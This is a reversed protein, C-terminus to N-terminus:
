RIEVGIKRLEYVADDSGCYAAKKFAEVADNKRGIEKYAVGLLYNVQADDPNIKLAQMYWPVAELFSGHDAYFNGTKTYATIYDPNVEIAKQYSALAKGDENLKGYMDGLNCYAAVFSYDAGVARKYYSAAEEYREEERFTHGLLNYFGAQSFYASLLARRYWARAHEQMGCSRYCMGILLFSKEYEPSIAIAKELYQAATMFKESNNTLAAKQFFANGLWYYTDSSSSDAEESLKLYKIASDYNGLKSLVIGYNRFTDAGSARLEIAKAYHKAASFYQENIYYNNAKQLIVDRSYGLNQFIYFVLCLFMFCLTGIISYRTNKDMKIKPMKVKVKMNIKRM